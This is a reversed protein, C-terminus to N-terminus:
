LPQFSQGNSARRTKNCTTVDLNAPPSFSPNSTAQVTIQLGLRSLASLITLSVALIRELRDFSETKDVFKSPNSNNVSVSEQTGLLLQFQVVQQTNKSVM